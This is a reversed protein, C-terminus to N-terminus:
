PECERCSFLATAVSVWKRAGAPPAFGAKARRTHRNLSRCSELMWVRCVAPGALWGSCVHRRGPPSDAVRYGSAM